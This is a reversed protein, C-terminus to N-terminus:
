SAPASPVTSFSAVYTAWIDDSEGNTPTYENSAWFTNPNAPDVVTSSYDGTRNSFFMITQGARALATSTTGPVDGAGHVGVYMSIYETSSSEMYTTGIDGAADVAVSPMYTDIGAGPSIVGQDMLTPTGSTSVEYWIAHMTTDGESPLTGN